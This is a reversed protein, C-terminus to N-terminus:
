RIRLRALLQDLWGNLTEFLRLYAPRQLWTDYRLMESAAFDIDLLHRVQDAFEASNIEQNADLNWRLNWRDFNTSGISAWDDCLAIKAHIFSPQYEFIRVGSRLLRAYYRRSAHRVSPHDTLRGPVLIRVDLKRQAAKVLLRRLRLSPLFYPTILWVRQQSKSIQQYLSHLVHHARPGNSACVRGSENGAIDTAQPVRPRKFWNKRIGSWTREFLVHWDVVVPGRIALMVEHWPPQHRAYLFEDTLGAGGVYALQQDILLLKRHNRLLNGLGKRWRLRNFIAFEVGATQLVQRDAFHLGRAGYGDLLIRIHVGRQVAQLLAQQFQTFVAGSSVLYMELEISQQAQAIAQLMAPFYERGDVLLDFQNGERWPFRLPLLQRLFPNPM